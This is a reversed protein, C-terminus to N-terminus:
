IIRKPIKAAERTSLIWAPGLRRELFGELSRMQSEFRPDQEALQVLTMYARATDAVNFQAFGSEQKQLAMFTPVSLRVFAMLCVIFATLSVGSVWKRQWAERKFFEISLWFTLCTALGVGYVFLLSANSFESREALHALLILASFFCTLRTALNGHWHIVPVLALPASFMLFPLRERTSWAEIMTLQGAILTEWGLYDMPGQHWLLGSVLLLRFGALQCVVVFTGM